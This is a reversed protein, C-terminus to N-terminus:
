NLRDIPPDPNRTLTVRVPTPTETPAFPNLCDTWEEPRRVVVIPIGPVPAYQRLVSISL